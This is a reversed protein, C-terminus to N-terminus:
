YFIVYSIYQKYMHKTKITLRQEKTKCLYYFYTFSFCKVNRKYETKKYDECKFASVVFLDYCETM